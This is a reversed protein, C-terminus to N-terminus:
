YRIIGLRYLLHLKLHRKYYNKMHENIESSNPVFGLERKRLRAVEQQGIHNMALTKQREHVRFAGLFRPLRVLKVGMKQMRLIYDWDMAFKFTEDFGGVKEWVSRRWFMTEQPLYDVWTLAESDHEPIIWRGVELGVENIIVRHGYVVDVNPNNAFFEGVYKLTGPLYLDDSNLYALVDGTTKHMGINIANTQGKDPVSEIHTVKNEYRSLINKTGDDSNADQIIYELRPYNQEIVSRITSEIFQSQNYSPTVISIAPLKENSIKLPRSYRSPFQLSKPPYQFLEGLRPITCVHQFTRWLRVFFLKSLSQKLRALLYIFSTKRYPLLQQIVREKALLQDYQGDVRIELDANTQKLSEIKQDNVQLQQELAALTQTAFNKYQILEQIVHEKVELEFTQRDFTVQEHLHTEQLKRRTFDIGLPHFSPANKYSIKINRIREADEDSSAFISNVSLKRAFFYGGNLMLRSIRKLAEDTNTEVIIIRPQYQSLDLSDLIDFENGETDISLLDINVDEPLHKALIQNLTTAPVELPNLRRFRQKWNLQYNNEIFEVQKNSETGSYLGSKEAYFTVVDEDEDGICAVNTCVSKPRNKECLPFYDPHPEVCIGQWDQQELFYTNSLHIGDFAGVDVFFGSTKHGFFEWILYDEGHQSYFLEDQNTSKSLAYGHEVLWDECIDEIIKVQHNFLENKWRGTLSSQIHNPHLLSKQDYDNPASHFSQKIAVLYKKQNEISFKNVYDELQQPTLKICLFEAIESVEGELNGIIDEYRSSHINAILSWAKDNHLQEQLFGSELLEEFVMKQRKMQSVFTDRLDRYSYIVKAQDETCIDLMEQTQQHTKVVLLQQSDGHQALLNIFNGPEVWGLGIGLKFDEVLTSTIQYQVTSASRKLGCCLIWM